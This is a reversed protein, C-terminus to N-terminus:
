FPAAQFSANARLFRKLTRGERWPLKGLKVHPRFPRPDAPLGFGVLAADIERQLSRLPPCEVVGVWLTHRAFHGVGALMMAFRAHRIGALAAKIGELLGEEMEGIFRLTLHLNQDGVWRGAPMDEGLKALSAKLDPPLDIAVFLRRM